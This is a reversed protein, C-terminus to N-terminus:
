AIAPTEYQKKQEMLRNRFLEMEGIFYGLALFLMIRYSLFQLGGSVSMVLSLVIISLVLAHNEQINLKLVSQGFGQVSKKIKLSSAYIIYFLYFYLVFGFIGTGHLLINYDVHLQRVRGFHKQMVEASNFAENGFLIKLPNSESMENLVYFTEIYRSENELENRETTRAAIRTELVESYQMLLLYLGAAVFLLSVLSASKKSTNLIYILFGAGLAAIAGRKVSLLIVFIGASVLVISIIKAYPLSGTNFANFMILLALAIVIPAAATAGGKYFSDEDYISVGLKFVQSFVYNLLLLAVVWMFPKIMQKDQMKGLHLGVPIMLLSLSIKLFGDVVSEQLNSSLLSVVLLYFVYFLTTSNLPNKKVGYNTIFYLILGLMYALRTVGVPTKLVQFLNMLIDFLINM